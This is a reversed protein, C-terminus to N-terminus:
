KMSFLRVSCVTLEATKEGLCCSGRQHPLLCLLFYRNVWWQRHPTTKLVCVIQIVFDMISLDRVSFLVLKQYFRCVCEQTGKTM